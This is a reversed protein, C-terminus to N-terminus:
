ARGPRIARHPLRVRSHRAPGLSVHSFETTGRISDVRLVDLQSRDAVVRGPADEGLWRRAADLAAADDSELARVGGRRAGDVDPKVFFQMVYM